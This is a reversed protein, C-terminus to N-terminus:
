GSRVPRDARRMQARTILLMVGRARMMFQAAREDDRRREDGRAAYCPPLDAAAIVAAAHRTYRTARRTYRKDYRMKAAFYRASFAARPLAVQAYYREHRRRLPRPPM